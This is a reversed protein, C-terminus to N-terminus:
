YKTSGGENAILAALRRPMSDVLSQLTNLSIANWEERIIRKLAAVTRPERAYVRDQVIGWLNEIVNQDPSNAPWDSKKIYRPV